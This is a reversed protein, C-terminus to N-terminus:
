FKKFNYFNQFPDLFKGLEEVLSQLYKLLCARLPNFGGNAGLRQTM